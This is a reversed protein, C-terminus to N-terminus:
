TRGPGHRPERQSDLADAIDYLIEAVKELARRQVAATGIRTAETLQDVRCDFEVWLDNPGPRTGGPRLEYSLIPTDAAPEDDWRIPEDDDFLGLAGAKRVAADAIHRLRGTFWADPPAMRSQEVAALWEWQAVGLWDEPDIKEGDRERTPSGPPSVTDVPGRRPLLEGPQLTARQRHVEDERALMRDLDSRRVLWKRRGARTAELLGKAVWSRITAPSLRLEDAIEALTLWPDDAPQDDDRM